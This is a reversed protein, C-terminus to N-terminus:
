KKKMDKRAMYGRFGAQVKTAAYNVVAPDLDKYDLVFIKSHECSDLKKISHINGGRGGGICFSHLCVKLKPM